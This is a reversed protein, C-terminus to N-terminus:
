PPRKFRDRRKHSSAYSPKASMRARPILNTFSKASLCQSSTIGSTAHCRSCLLHLHRRRISALNLAILVAFFLVSVASIINGCNMLNRAFRALFRARPKLLRRRLEGVHKSVSHSCGLVVSRALTSRMSTILAADLGGLKSLLKLSSLGGDRM